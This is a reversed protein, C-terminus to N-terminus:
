RRRAEIQDTEDLLSSFADFITRSRRLGLGGGEFAAM